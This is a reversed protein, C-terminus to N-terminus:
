KDEAGGSARKLAALVRPWAIREQELRVGSGWRGRRLDDYLATEAATLGDLAPAAHPRTEEVWLARHALLTAEDMLLARTQRFRGRMRALMALGHTDIDGWYDISANELWDIETLPELAYGLGVIALTGPLPPLALGSQLNEIVLVRAPHLPLAALDDVPSEIDALGRPWGLLAPDLALLEADDFELLRAGVGPHM